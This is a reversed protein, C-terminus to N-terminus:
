EALDICLHSNEDKCHSSCNLIYIKKIQYHELAVTMAERYWSYKILHYSDHKVFPTDSCRFHIVCDYVPIHRSIKEIVGGLYKKITPQLLRWLDYGGDEWLRDSKHLNYLMEMDIDLEELEDGSLLELHSPLKKIFDDDDIIDFSNRNLSRELYVGFYSSISNGIGLGTQLHFTKNFYEKRKVIFYIFLGILLLVFLISVIYLTPSSM